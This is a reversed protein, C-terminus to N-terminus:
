EEPLEAYKAEITAVDVEEPKNEVVPTLNVQKVDQYGFNNVGLFVGAMPNIKGNQMYAEWLAELVAYARVIVEEHTDARYEGRKWRWLTSKDIRLANCFGKVSPKMDDQACIAFYLDIREEVERPDKIDIPPLKMVALEHNLYKTNDGAEVYEQGFKALDPRNRKQKVPTASESNKHPRGRKKPTNEIENAM